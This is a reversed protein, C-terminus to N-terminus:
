KAVPAAASTDASQTSTPVAEATAVVRAHFSRIYAKRPLQFPSMSHSEADQLARTNDWGHHDIHYSAIVAGTRDAGHLCHVFVPGSSQDELMALIRSIQAESPPTLGTMPVNVYRMGAATVAREEAKSRGDAERLDVVTKVGIKSLYLFGESTPQGGRYVHEDVQDFNKIGPVPSGAFVPVAILSVIALCYGPRSLTRLIM